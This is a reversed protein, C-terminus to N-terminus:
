VGLWHESWAAFALTAFLMAREVEDLPKPKAILSSITAEDLWGALLERRDALLSRAGDRYIPDAAQDKPLASKRRWRLEAPLAAPAARRLM